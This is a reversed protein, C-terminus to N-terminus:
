MWVAVWKYVRGPRFYTTSSGPVYRENTLVADIAPTRNHLYATAASLRSENTSRRVQHQTAVLEDGSGDYVVCDFAGNFHWVVDSYTSNLTSDYTGTADILAALVPAKDHHNKFEIVLNPYATPEDVTVTGSEIESGQANFFAIASEADFAFNELGLEGDLVITDIM